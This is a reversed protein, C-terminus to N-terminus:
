VAKALEFLEAPVLHQLQWIMAIPRNGEYSVLDQAPGLFIFPVTESEQRKELRAFFLITYGRQRFERYNQGTPSDQATAAQSEWHLLSRSILYDKYRTTPAFDSDEKRFTVLHIYTQTEPLHMVGVGTSGSRTLDALGFAAKIENFGYAAHLRLRPNGPLEITQTPYAHVGRRWKAVEFLDDAGDANALWKAFSEQYTKVGVDDGKRGWLLYHLAAKDTDRFGYDVAPEAVAQRQSLSILQDMLDPDTRMAVRRLTKRVASADPNNGLTKRQAEAQWESWTRNKLLDLPHIGTETVFSGFSLPVGTEQEFTRIAEPVFQKLNGMGERINRLVHERAVREFQISCGPPMNPFDHEIERDIRRRRTRLLASLKQHLRYKRHAQGVFDLVTLCDKQPAHRLGRGLQQLFVTLSETPRLFLVLNIEPIDVGESFVDVTFLFTIKGDRFARVREDRITKHTEGLLEEAVLNAEKFKRTMYRAHKVSACFGVARTGSLDPQYRRIADLIADLRQNAPLTEATYVETLVETDYKGNRWFREDAVAVPDTVGFYHFPCLLKEDLAEPLRIEAAFRGGFDPLISTNDMREPTATLGLLLKPRLHAFLPRYTAATGHHAEDVIVFDFHEVGLQEWPRRNNLSPISAFVHNWHTPVNGEVLIEGFNHDRLVTRFCDRAQQLIEKRHVAFLLRHGAAPSERCFRAYDFAAMVTKGTGTAAVVLNRFSGDQREAALADLIREQFAYPKIDAFFHPGIDPTPHRASAIAKRFEIAQDRDFPVFEDRAWYTEFEAEFRALIHPMDQVTVKVTWELGSTMAPQSMNASGIYATSFGSRRHFHYAKAHLRTRETDYSVRLSFGPQAALWEVAEPDSAGMYSTTIIRVPVQREVLNELAPLLLRLGSWKIFSVLIDVRDASLMELRLERELQPDDGSGTLLSSVSLPSGPRETLPQRAYRIERLVNEPQKILRKRITYDLGDEASLLEILRNTVELRQELKLIPLAQRLVQWIFQSYSHPARHDDLKELTAVLEPHQALVAALEEDLLSEYLGVPLDSESETSM